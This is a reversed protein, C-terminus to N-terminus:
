MIIKNISSCLATKKQWNIFHFTISLSTRFANVFGVDGIYGKELLGGKRRPQIALGAATINSYIHYTFDSPFRTSVAHLIKHDVVYIHIWIM